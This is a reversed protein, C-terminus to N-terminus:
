LIIATLSWEIEVLKVLLKYTAHPVISSCMQKSFAIVRYFFWAKDKM